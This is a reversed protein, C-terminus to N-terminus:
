VNNFKDYSLISFQLINNHINIHKEELTSSILHVNRVSKQTVRFEVTSQQGVL